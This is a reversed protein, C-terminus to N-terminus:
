CPKPSPNVKDYAITLICGDNLLTILVLCLVPLEFVAPLNPVSAFSSPNVFMMAFFFFYLLQTTCAIRYICYNRMREFIMRARAIAEIIVSLGDSTLVIDAAARAADTSGNVAIGVDAARLAPADNVGDGTMGVRHGRQQLIQVIQFKHEPFVEAFGGSEEVM